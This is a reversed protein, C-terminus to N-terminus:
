SASTQLIIGSGRGERRRRVRGEDDHPDCPARVLPAAHRIIVFLMLVCSSCPSRLCAPDQRRAPVPQRDALHGGLFTIVTMFIGPAGTIWAYKTKNM